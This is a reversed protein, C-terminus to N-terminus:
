RITVFDGTSSFVFDTDSDTVNIVIRGTKEVTVDFDEHATDLMRFMKNYDTDGEPLLGLESHTLPPQAEGLSVNLIYPTWEQLCRYRRLIDGAFQAAESRSKFFKAFEIQKTYTVAEQTIQGEVPEAIYSNIGRLVYLM